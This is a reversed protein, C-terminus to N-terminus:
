DEAGDAEGFPKLIFLTYGVVAGLLLLAAIAYGNNGLYNAVACGIAPPFYQYLQDKPEDQTSRQLFLVVLAAFIGVTVWDYVTEL